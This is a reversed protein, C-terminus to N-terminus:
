YLSSIPLKQKHFEICYNLKKNKKKLLLKPHGVGFCEEGGSYTGEDDISKKLLSELLDKM